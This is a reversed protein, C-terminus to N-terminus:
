TFTKLRPLRALWYIDPKLPLAATGCFDRSPLTPSMLACNKSHHVAVNKCLPTSIHLGLGSSPRGHPPALEDRQEAARRGCPRRARLLRHRHDSEKM